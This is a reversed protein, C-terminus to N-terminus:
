GGAAGVAVLELHGALELAEALSLEIEIGGVTGRLFEIGDGHDVAGEFERGGEVIGAGIDDDEGVEGLQGDDALGALFDGDLAIDGVELFNLDLAGLGVLGEGGETQLGALERGGLYGCGGLGEDGVM